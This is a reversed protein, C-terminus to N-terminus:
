PTRWRLKLRETVLARVVEEYSRAELEWPKTLYDYYTEDDMDDKHKVGCWIIYGRKNILQKTVYQKIHVCEHSIWLLFNAFSAGPRHFELAFQWVGNEKDLYAMSARVDHSIEGKEYATFEILINIKNKNPVGELGCDVMEKILKKLQNVSKIQSVRLKKFDKVRVEIM